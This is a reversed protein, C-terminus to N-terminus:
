EELSAYKLNLEAGYPHRFYGSVEPKVLYSYNEYYLPALAAEEDILTQEAEALLEVRAEPDTETRAENLARDYEENDLSIDNFSSDSIWLDLFTTPDNYDAGWGGVVIQFDGERMRELREDFPTITIEVQAGINEQIQSQLFTSIDRATSTDDTLIELSPERGLEEVAQDWYESAEGADFERATPGVFERFTDEESTGSVGSPVLGESATSGDRLVDNVLSDRDVGTQLALRVNKNGTVENEYNPQLYWSTFQNSTDFDESDEFAGVQESNLDTVDLEGSEYLNLATDLDKIVQGDITEIDVNEADWYDDNKQFTAGNAPEFETLTYPGNYLISDAEQGFSDGQEEVFDQNLPFYTTFATLGLFYPIPDVLTVELTQEDPTEIAVEERSGEGANFEAGGQVYDSIIYAYQGGTDPDMARLWAYEFDQSTVPEGNSWEIGERLTFTYTREDESIEVDEAMAPQPENSEDLRYLGENVQNLVNFSTVDTTTGSDLDPIDSELNVTLTNGGGSGGEGGGGGGSDGSSFVGCGAVLLGSAVLM